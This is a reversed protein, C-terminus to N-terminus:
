EAVVEKENMSNDPIIVVKKDIDKIKKKQHEDFYKSM